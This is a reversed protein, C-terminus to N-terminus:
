ERVTLRAFHLQEDVLRFQLDPQTAFTGGLYANFLAGLLNVPTPADGFLERHGPTLAAFLTATREDLDSNELDAWDLGAGSGHDAFLVIVPPNPSAELIRDVTAVVLENLHAVQGTYAAGYVERSVGRTRAAEEYLTALDAAMPRGEADFVVPTHPSPVHAFVFRPRETTNAAERETAHLVGLVRNRHQDSVAASAHPLRGLATTRLAVVELENMQGTDVFRDVARPTVTEFGSAVAVTEYGRDHLFSWALGENVLRRMRVLRKLGADGSSEDLLAVNFMSALTLETALYNSRSGSAVEFGRAELAALFPRNDYGFLSELKDARTYGDLLVVYIDPADVPAPARASAVRIPGEAVVDHAVSAFAGEQFARIAVALLIV